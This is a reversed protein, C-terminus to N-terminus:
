RVRSRAASKRPLSGLGMPVYPERIRVISRKRMSGLAQRLRPQASIPLTMYHAAIAAFLRCYSDSCTRISVNGCVAHQTVKNKCHYDLHDNYCDPKLPEGEVPVFKVGLIALVGELQQPTITLKNRPM